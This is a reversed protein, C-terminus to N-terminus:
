NIWPQWKAILNAPSKFKSLTQFDYKFIGPRTGVFGLITEKGIEIGRVRKGNIQSFKFNDTRKMLTDRTKFLIKFIKFLVDEKFTSKKSQYQEGGNIFFGDRTILM